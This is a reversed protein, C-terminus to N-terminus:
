QGGAFSSPHTLADCRAATRDPQVIAGHFAERSTTGPFAPILESPDMLQIVGNAPAVLLGFDNL